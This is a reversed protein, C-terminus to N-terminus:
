CDGASFPCVTHYLKACDQNPRRARGTTKTQPKKRKRKTWLFSIAPSQPLFVSLKLGAQTECHTGFM